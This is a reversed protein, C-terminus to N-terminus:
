CDIHYIIGNNGTNINKKIDINASVLLVGNSKCSASDSNTAPNKVSCEDIIKTNKKKLSYLEITKIDLRVAMKNKPPYLKISNNSFLVINLICLIISPIFVQKNQKKNTHNLAVRGLNLYSWNINNQQVPINGIAIAKM